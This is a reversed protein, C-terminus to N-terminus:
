QHRRYDKTLIGRSRHCHIVQTGAKLGTMAQILRRDNVLGRILRDALDSQRGSRRRCLSRLHSQVLLNHVLYAKTLGLLSALCDKILIDPHLRLYAKTLIIGLLAAQHLLAITGSKL